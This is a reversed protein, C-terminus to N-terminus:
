LDILQRKIGCILTPKSKIPTNSHVWTKWIQINWVIHVSLECSIHVFLVTGVGTHFAWVNTSELFCARLGLLCKSLICIDLKSDM